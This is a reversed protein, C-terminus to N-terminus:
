KDQPNFFLNQHPYKVMISGLSINFRDMDNCGMYITVVQPEM